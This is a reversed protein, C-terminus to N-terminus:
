EGAEPILLQLYGRATYLADIRIRCHPFEDWVLQWMDARTSVSPRGPFRSKWASKEIEVIERDIKVILDRVKTISYRTQVVVGEGRRKRYGYLEDASFSM